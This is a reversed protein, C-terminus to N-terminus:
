VYLSPPSVFLVEVADSYYNLSSLCYFQDSHPRNERYAITVGAINLLCIKRNLIESFLSPAIAYRLNSHPALPPNSLSLRGLGMDMDRLSEDRCINDSTQNQLSVGPNPEGTFHPIMFVLSGIGM